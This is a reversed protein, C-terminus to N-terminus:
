GLLRGGAPSTVITVVTVVNTCVKRLYTHRNGGADLPPM